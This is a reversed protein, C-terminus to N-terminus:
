GEASSGPAVPGSGTSTVPASGGGGSLGAGTTTGIVEGKSNVVQGKANVHAGAPLTTGGALGGQTLTGAAQQQAGPVTSGCAATILGVAGIFAVLGRRRSVPM